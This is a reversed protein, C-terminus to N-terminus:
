TNISLHFTKCKRTPDSPLTNAPPLQCGVDGFDSQQANPPMEVDEPRSQNEANEPPVGYKAALMNLSDEMSVQHTTQMNTRKRLGRTRAM